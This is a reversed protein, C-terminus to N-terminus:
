KVFGVGIAGLAAITALVWTIFKGTKRAGTLAGTFQAVLSNLERIAETNNDLSHQIGKITEDTTRMYNSVGTELRIFSHELGEVKENLSNFDKQTM